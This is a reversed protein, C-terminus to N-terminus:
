HSPHLIPPLAAAPSAGGLTTALQRFHPLTEGTSNVMGIQSSPGYAELVATCNVICTQTLANYETYTGCTTPSNNPDSPDSPDSPPAFPPWPLYPPAPPSLPSPPAQPPMADTWNLCVRGDFGWYAQVVYKHVPTAYIETTAQLLSITTNPNVVILNSNNATPHNCYGPTTSPALFTLDYSHPPMPSLIVGGYVETKSIWVSLEPSLSLCPLVPEGALNTCTFAIFAFYWLDSIGLCKQNPYRTDLCDDIELTVLCAGSPTREECVPTSYATLRSM